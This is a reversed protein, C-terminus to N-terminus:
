APGFRDIRGNRQILTIISWPLDYHIINHCEHHLNLGEAAVDTALLMADGGSGTGFAEVSRMLHVDPCSGHITALVQKPQEEYKDFVQDLIKPWHRPWHIKRRVISTFVLRSSQVAFRELWHRRTAEQSTPLSVFRSDKVQSNRMLETWSHCSQAPRTPKVFVRSASKAPDKSMVGPQSLFQKYIGYQLLNHHRWAEDSKNEIAQTRLDALVAYVAEEAPTADVMTEALPILM